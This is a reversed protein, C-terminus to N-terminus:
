LPLRGPSFKGTPDFAARVRRMVGSAPFDTGFPDVGPAGAVRLLWGGNDTAVRRAATFGDLDTTGVHVTGVGTESVAVVERLAALEEAVRQLRGPPVSMRGRHPGSVAVPSEPSDIPTLGATRVQDTVDDANGELLVRTHAGDHLVCSPRFLRGLVPGPAETTTAWTSVAPLPACRLTVQTILGLTGLSGVLLRCLDFGTVNKVTPGGGRVLSGRATVFRVELLLDRLPGVRLRRHGSLGAALVGGVTADEDPPDLACQQGSDALTARLEGATTGAGVTVTLEAPDYAVIGAPAAVEEGDGPVGGVEWQTRGGVPLVADSVAIRECVEDLGGSAAVGRLASGRTV